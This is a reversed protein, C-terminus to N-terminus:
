REGVPFKRGEDFRGIASFKLDPVKVFDSIRKISDLSLTIFVQARM